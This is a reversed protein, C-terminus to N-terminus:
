STSDGGAADFLDNHSVRGAVDVEVPVAVGIATSIPTYIDLNQNKAKLTVILAYRRMTDCIERSARERCWGVVPKVCLMDRDLLEIAPGRWVDCHISGASVSMVGLMWRGDDAPANPGIRWDDRES